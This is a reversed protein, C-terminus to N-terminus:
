YFTNKKFNQSIGFLADRAFDTLVSQIMPLKRYM